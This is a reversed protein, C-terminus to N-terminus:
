MWRGEFFYMMKGLDTDFFEQGNNAGLSNRVETTGYLPQAVNRIKFNKGGKQFFTSDSGIANVGIKKTYTITGAFCEDDMVIADDGEVGGPINETVGRECNFDIININQKGKTYVGDYKVGAKVFLPMNVGREDCCNIMTIPHLFAGYTWEYNGFTYSYVNFIGSCDLMIVHEGGVQFAEYFGNAGCMKYMCETGYNWGNTMRIGICGDVAKPPIGGIDLGYGHLMVSELYPRGVNFLNICIIPKQNNPIRIGIKKLRLGLRSYEVNPASIIEYKRDNTIQNHAITSLYLITGVIKDYSGTKEWYGFGVGEIEITVNSQPITLCRYVGDECLTFNQLFFRGASLKICGGGVKNLYDIAKQIEVEDNVGDCVYDAYTKEEESAENSAIFIRDKSRMLWKPYIKKEEGIVYGTGDFINVKKITVHLKCNEDTVEFELVGNSIYRYRTGNLTLYDTPKNSDKFLNSDKKLVSCTIGVYEFIVLFMFESIDSINGFNVIGKDGKEFSYTLYSDSETWAISNGSLEYSYKNEPVPTSGINEFDNFSESSVIERVNLLRGGKYANCLDEKLSNIKDGTVKADAAANEVTLSKDIPPNSPNTINATLWATTENNVTPKLLNLLEGSNKMEEIKKNVEAQLGLNAFFQNVFDYLAKYSKVLEDQADFMEKVTKFLVVFKNELSLTGKFDYPIGRVSAVVECAQTIMQGFDPLTPFDPITPKDAM